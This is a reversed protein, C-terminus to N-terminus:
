AVDYMQHRHMPLDNETEASSASLVFTNKYGCCMIKAIVANVRSVNRLKSKDTANPAMTPTSRSIVWLGAPNRVCMSTDSPAASNVITEMLKLM